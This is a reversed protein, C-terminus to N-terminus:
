ETIGDEKWRAGRGAGSLLGHRFSLEALCMRDQKGSARRQEAIKRDHARRGRRLQDGFHDGDIGCVGNATSSNTM